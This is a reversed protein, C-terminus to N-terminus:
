YRRKKPEPTHLNKKRRKPYVALPRMSQGRILTAKKIKIM